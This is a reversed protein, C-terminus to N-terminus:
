CSFYSMTFLILAGPSLNKKIGGQPTCIQGRKKYLMRAVIQTAQVRRKM